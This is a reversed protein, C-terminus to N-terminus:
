DITFGTIFVSIPLKERLETAALEALYLDYHISHTIHPMRATVKYSFDSQSITLARLEEVGKVGDKDLEILVDHRYKKTKEEFFTNVTITNLTLKREYGEKFIHQMCKGGIAVLEGEKIQKGSYFLTIHPYGGKTIQLLNQTNMDDFNSVILFFM